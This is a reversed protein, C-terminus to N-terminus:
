NNSEKGKQQGQQTEGSSPHAHEAEDSTRRASDGVPRTGSGRKGRSGRMYEGGGGPGRQPRDAGAASAPRGNGQRKSSQSALTIDVDLKAVIESPDPVRLLVIEGETLGSTIEVDLESIRGLSVQKQEYGSAKPVYVFPVAGNRFVAQIPVCLADNVEGVNIEAKCRMSPKLGFGSADYLLIKISYDRRNPDRWGGSEALVGVEIVEGNLIVDALADSKVTASQGIKILGSRAEDVKVIAILQAMNPLLIVRENPRLETGVDPPQGQNRWHGGSELSSYYVVLGETPATIICYGLQEKLDALRERRSEAQYKKSAVDSDSSELEAKQRELVRGLRDIAQKVDSEFEAKEIVYTYKEYVECDLKAQELAAAAKIKTIEDRKFEDMSVFDEKVLRKSDEFRAVAREHDLEAAELDVALGKRMRKVSGGEWAKLSLKALMVSLNADALESEQQSLTIALNSTAAVFTSEATNVEDQADKIRNNIEDDAFRMLVDGAKVYDGEDVIETIVARIELKNRIEVQELAALEGSTPISIKFSSRKVLARDGAAISGNDKGSNKVILTTAGLIAVLSVALIVIGTTGGRRHTAKNKM